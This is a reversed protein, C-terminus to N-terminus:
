ADTQVEEKPETLKAASAGAPSFPGVIWTLPANEAVYELLEDLAERAEAMKEESQALLNNSVDHFSQVSSFAAQLDEMNSYTQRVMEQLAVPLGQVNALLSQCIAQLKQALSRSLGLAQSGIQGEGDAENQEVPRSKKWALWMEQLKEQGDQIKQDVAQKAYKIERRSRGSERMAPLSARRLKTSLSGLQVYYSQQQKQKEVPAIGSGELQLSAALSALEEDTVPLEESKEIVKDVGGAVMALSTEMVTNVGSTVASRAMEMSEQASEKAVDVMSSMVDKVDTVKSCISDKAGAVLDKTDLVVKEVTQQLVPLTEQLKDLGKCAYSNAAAIQPEFKDLLPQASSVASTAVTKVGTEAMDCVAQIAPHSEKASSYTASVMECAASVLPLAAVKNIVTQPDNETSADKGVQPENATSADKPTEEKAAM